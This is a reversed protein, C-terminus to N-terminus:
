QEAVKKLAANMEEFGARTDTNLKRWFFPVLIGRFNERQVFRVRGDSSPFIEYIHEGDFLRPFLLRGLWRFERTSDVRTVTPKFTMSKGSREQIRVKLKAGEQVQGEAERIHPNWESYGNLDTLIAWVEEPSASIEIETSLERTQNALVALVIILAALLGIAIGRKSKMSAAYVRPEPSGVTM